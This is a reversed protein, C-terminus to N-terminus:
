RIDRGWVSTPARQITVPPPLAPAAQPPTASAAPAERAPKAPPLDGSPVANKKPESKRPALSMPPSSGPAGAPALVPVVPPADSLERLRAEDEARARADEEARRRAEEIRRKEEEVARRRADEEAVRKAGEARHKAEAEELAKLKRAQNEVARLTLWGTLASVDISKQPEALPGNLSMFIDPRANAGSATGSLVVHSDIMGDTLDLMGSASVTADDSAANVRDIRLQGTAIALDAEVTRLKLAGSDLAKGVLDSVRAAKVQLGDDVARAVADFARPDLGAILADKLMLKGSGQLSGVLAVPSLGTGEFSLQMALTGGIPPRASSHIFTRADAGTLTLRGKATVGNGGESLAIDGKLKGSAVDAALDRM